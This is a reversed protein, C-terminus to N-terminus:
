AAGGGKIKSTRWDPSTRLAEEAERILENTSRRSAAYDPEKRQSKRFVLDSLKDFDAKNLTTPETLHRLRSITSESVDCRRSVEAQIVDNDEIYKQIADRFPIGVSVKEGGRKSYSPQRQKEDVVFVSMMRVGAIDTSDVTIDKKTGDAQVLVGKGSGNKPFMINYM